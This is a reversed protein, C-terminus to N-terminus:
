FFLYYEQEHSSALRRVIYLNRLNSTVRSGLTYLENVHLIMGGPTIFNHMCFNASIADSAIESKFSSFKWPAHGRVERTPSAEGAM